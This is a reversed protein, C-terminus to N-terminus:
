NRVIYSYDDAFEYDPHDIIYRCAFKIFPALRNGNYQKQYHFLTNHSMADLRDYVERALRYFETEGLETKLTDLEAFDELRYKSLHTCPQWFPCGSCAIFGNSHYNQNEAKM